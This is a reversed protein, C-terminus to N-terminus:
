RQLFSVPVGQLDTCSAPLLENASALLEILQKIQSKLIFVEDALSKAVWNELMRIQSEASNSCDSFLVKVVPLLDSKFASEMTDERGLCYGTSNWSNPNLLTVLLMPSRSTLDKVLIRFSLEDKASEMLQNTFMRGLTYKRFMDSSGGVPSSTSIYCKLLRVGDDILADGDCPYAGLLSSCQPCVFEVWQIKMSLNSSRAMFIDELFGNLFHKKNGDLEMTMTIKPDMQFTGSADPTRPEHIDSCCPGETHVCGPISGMIECFDPIPKKCFSNGSITEEITNACNVKAAFHGNDLQDDSLDRRSEGENEHTTVKEQNNGSDLAAEKMSGDASFKPKCHHEQTRNFEPLVCEVLDDKCLTITSINLLCLGKACSYSKAYRTVLKESIGGFSCCCGGFWNDAVEQWNVSPMEMFNRIPSRTLTTSCSRCYFNVGETASLRKLDSDMVLPQLSDLVASKLGESLNLVSDFSSIIPHDVPLILVLKIEIHDDLARVNVPSEADILVRPVPVRLSIEKIDEDEEVEEDIWTVLLHSQSLVLRTDLNRCQISPKTLSDFLYLRLTPSHSQAEWTYRWTTPSKPNKVSM